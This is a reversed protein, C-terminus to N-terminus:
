KWPWPTVHTRTAWADWAAALETVRAPQEAALDTTETRDTDMDYLEWEGRSGKAVLKWRGDRVARNGEHEWFLPEGRRISEGSFAPLLSRGALPVMPRGEIEAPYDAQGVAKCTAMIDIIHSAQHELRGHHESTIGAPWHVILPTAIGGEHVWHKFERFPTNSANAWGRGYGVYTDAPGPMVGVGMRLPRGDRTRKPVMDLQLAGPEMRKLLEPEDDSYKLKASRGFGEACAGNDQLFMVLTDGRNGTEDVADRIRGIGQDMCDVMAAYVEMCRINWEQHPEDAWPPVKPDRASLQWSSDVLGLRRIKALREDRVADWGADYRGAYKAINHPRAHMPWHAATYAVYLFFPQDSHQRSHERITEAAYDSIADTYFFDDSDPPIQTNDRTLSNPDYFSGAGHITGFFRDFGRQRPWNHLPGEPFRHKTVHWKGAMYCRYGAPRLVEAITRCNQSLDGRYGPLERDDMMHGIEAQHAYVGTLLAARTPCCRAGNYFQTFRVGRAALSDLVPTQIEGGYCGIDSFGMDDSLILVINPRTPAASSILPVLSASLLLLSRHM